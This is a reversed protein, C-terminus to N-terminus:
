DYPMFITADIGTAALLELKQDVDTLLKPASEPRVVSAPHRDFTMVAAKAGSESALRRVAQIVAQHGRHVGDYAGISLVTREGEWPPSDLKTVIQVFKSAVGAPHVRHLQEPSWSLPSPSMERLSTSRWCRGVAM